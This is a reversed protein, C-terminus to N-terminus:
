RKTWKGKLCWHIPKRFYGWKEILGRQWLSRMMRELSWYRPDGSPMPEGPPAKGALALAIRRATTKGKFYDRYPKTKPYFIDALEDVTIWERKELLELVQRQRKSLGKSM